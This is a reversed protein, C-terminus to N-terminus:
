SLLPTPTVIEGRRRWTGGDDFLEETAISLSLLADAALGAARLAEDVRDLMARSDTLLHEDRSTTTVHLRAVGTDAGFEVHDVLGIIAEAQEQACRLEADARILNMRKPQDM